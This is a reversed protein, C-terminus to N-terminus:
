KEDNISDRYALFAATSFKAGRCASSTSSYRNEFFEKPYDTLVFCCKKGLLMKADGVQIKELLINEPPCESKYLVIKDRAGDCTSAARSEAM